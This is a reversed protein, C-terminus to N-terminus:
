ITQRPAGFATQPEIGSSIRRAASSISTSSSLNSSLENRERNQPELAYVKEEGQQLHARM